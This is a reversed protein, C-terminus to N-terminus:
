NLKMTMITENLKTLYHIKSLQHIGNNFNLVSVNCAGQSKDPLTCIQNDTIRMLPGAPSKDILKKCEETTIIMHIGYQLKDPIAIDNQFLFLFGIM